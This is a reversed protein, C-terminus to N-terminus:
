KKKVEKKNQNEFYAWCKSIDETSYFCLKFEWGKSKFYEILPILFDYDLIKDNCRKGMTLYIRQKTPDHTEMM